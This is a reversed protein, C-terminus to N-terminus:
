QHSEYKDKSRFKKLNELCFKRSKRYIKRFERIYFQIQYQQKIDKTCFKSNQFDKLLQFDYENCINSECHQLDYVFDDYLKETTFVRDNYVIWSARNYRDAYWGNIKSFFLESNFENVHTIETFHPLQEKINTNM